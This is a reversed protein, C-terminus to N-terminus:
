ELLRPVDRRTIRGGTSGIGGPVPISGIVEVYIDGDDTVQVAGSNGPGTGPRMRTFAPEVLFVDVWGIVPINSARGNLNAARCNVVAAMMRRRDLAPTTPAVSSRCVPYSFGAPSGSSPQRRDSDTLHNAEWLYVNYRSVTSSLGTHTTWASAGGAAASTWGYNVRFYADRDWSGDGVRGGSCGATTYHCMDRPHGMISPDQTGNTPLATASAAQGTYPNTPQRWNSNGTTGCGYNPNGSPGTVNTILDKRANRSASCTGSGPCANNDNSAPIDFRTNFADRVSSKAGPETTVGAPSICGGPTNNYGIARALNSAGSGFGTQLFGFNGPTDATGIVLRLGTGVYSSANFAYDLNTNTTPELPNCIMYPQIGCEATGLGAFASATLDGSSLVAVIPTLAYNATRAGVTVLVYNAEGDNAAEHSKAATAADYDRYYIISPVTIAPTSGDNAFATINAVLNRAASTARARSGSTGDLQGAAALAAQDAANQLETDLAVMRSYDYAVGGIAVLAVLSLSILTAFAGSEDRWFRLALRKM